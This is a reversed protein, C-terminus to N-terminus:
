FSLKHEELRYFLDLAFQQGLWPLCQLRNCPYERGDRSTYHLWGRGAWREGCLLMCRGYELLTMKKRMSFSWGRERGWHIMPYTLTEYLEHSLSDMRMASERGSAIDQKFVVVVRLGPISSRPRELVSCVDVKCARVCDEDDAHIHFDVDEACWDRANSFQRVVINKARLEELVERFVEVNGELGYLNNEYAVAREREKHGCLYYHICNNAERM